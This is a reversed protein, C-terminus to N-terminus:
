RADPLEDVLPDLLSPELYLQSMWQLDSCDRFGPDLRVLDIGVRQSLQESRVEDRSGPYGRLIHAIEPLEHSLARIEDLLGRTELIPDM